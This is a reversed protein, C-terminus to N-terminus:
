GQTVAREKPSTPESSRLLTIPKAGYTERQLPWTLFLIAPNSVDHAEITEILTPARCSAIVQDSQQARAVIDIEVNDQLGAKILTQAIDHATRVGM